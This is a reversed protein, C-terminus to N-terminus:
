LYESEAVSSHRVMGAFPGPDVGHGSNIGKIGELANNFLDEFDCIKSDFFNDFDSPGGHFLGDGNSYYNGDIPAM